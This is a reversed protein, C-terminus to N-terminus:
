GQHQYTKGPPPTRATWVIRTRTTSAVTTAVNARRILTGAGESSTAAPSPIPSSGPVGSIRTVGSITLRTTSGGRSYAAPSSSDQGSNRRTQCGTATRAIPSTSADAAATPNTATHTAGSGAVRANTSPATSALVSGTATAASPRRSDSGGRSCVRTWASLRNLSAVLRIRNRTVTPAATAPTASDQHAAAPCNATSANPPAAIPATTAPPTASIRRRVSSGTRSVTTASIVGYRANTAASDSCADPTVATTTALMMRPISAGFSVM